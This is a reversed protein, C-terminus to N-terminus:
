KYKAFPTLDIPLSESIYHEVVSDLLELGCTFGSIHSLRTVRVPQVLNPMLEQVNEPLKIISRQFFIFNVAASMSSEYGRKYCDDYSSQVIRELKKATEEAMIQGEKDCEIYYHEGNIKLLVAYM